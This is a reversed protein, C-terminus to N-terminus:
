GSTSISLKNQLTGWFLHPKLVPSPHRNKAGGHTKRDSLTVVVVHRDYL